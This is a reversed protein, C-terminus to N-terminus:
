DSRAHGQFHDDNSMGSPKLDKPPPARWPIWTITNDDHIRFSYMELKKALTAARAIDRRAARSLNLHRTPLPRSSSSPLSSRRESM